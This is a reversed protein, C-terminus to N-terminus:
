IDYKIILQDSMSLLVNAATKKVHFYSLNTKIEEVEANSLKRSSIYKDNRKKTEEKNTAVDLQKQLDDDSLPVLTVMAYHSKEGLFFTFGDIFKNSEDIAEKLQSKTYNRMSNFIEQYNNYKM